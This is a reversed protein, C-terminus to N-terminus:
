IINGKKDVIIGSGSGTAPLANYFFDYTVTTTNINVVSPGASEYININTKEDETLAYASQSKLIFLFGFFVFLHM